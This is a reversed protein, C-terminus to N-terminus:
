DNLEKVLSIIDKHAQQIDSELKAPFQNIKEKRSKIEDHNIFNLFEVVQQESEQNAEILWGANQFDNWSDCNKIGQFLFLSKKHVASVLKSPVCVNVWEPTLSVLHIDIFNLEKRPLYDLLTIGTSKNKIYTKIVEAKSGYLVMILHHKDPNIHDIVQKLFDTSHAEGLNGIYGFYIKNKDKKWEPEVENEEVIQKKNLFVGCPLIVTPINKNYKKKLSEAQIAGLSILANPPSQYITKYFHQYVLNSEKTLGNATFAEPYLDMTWYLWPINRKTFKRAAWYNLLPPSCMIIVPGTSVKIAKRILRRGEILSGIFRILKNKGSYFSKVKHINGHIEGEAGGGPYDGDTHVISVKIGHDIFSKALDSASEAIVSKNPPYNRDVITVNVPDKREM